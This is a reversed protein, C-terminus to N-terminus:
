ERVPLVLGRVFIYNVMFMGGVLFSIGVAHLLISPTTFIEILNYLLAFPNTLVDWTNWRVFRGLWVGFSCAAILTILSPWIWKEAFNRRLVAEIELMSALGLVLGSVAFSFFLSIDFWYPVPQRPHLHILDTILYPANPFFGLWLFFIPCTLWFSIGKTDCKNFIRAAIYPIWALFLNWVLFLFTNFTGMKFEHFSSPMQIQEANLVARAGILLCDFLTICLLAFTLSSTKRLM